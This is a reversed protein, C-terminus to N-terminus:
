CYRKSQIQEDEEDYVGIKVGTIGYGKSGIDLM